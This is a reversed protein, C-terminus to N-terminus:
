VRERCSARGIEDDIQALELGTVVAGFTADLPEVEFRTEVGM